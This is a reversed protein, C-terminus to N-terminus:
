AGLLAMEFSEDVVGEPVDDEHAVVGAGEDLHRKLDEADGFTVRCVVARSGRYMHVRTVAERTVHSSVVTKCIRMMKGESRWAETRARTDADIGREVVKDEVRSATELTFLVMRVVGETLSRALADDTWTKAKVGM